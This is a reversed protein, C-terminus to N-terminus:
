QIHFMVGAGATVAIPPTSWVEVGNLVLRTHTLPALGDARLRLSMIGAIPFELGIRAGADAYLSGDSRPASVGQGQGSLEGVGVLACGLAV